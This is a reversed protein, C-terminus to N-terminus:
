DFREMYFKRFVDPLSNVDGNAYAYMDAYLEEITSKSFGIRNPHYEFLYPHNLIMQAVGDNINTQVYVRVAFAFEPSRSPHGNQYDLKHAEEHFCEKETKCYILGSIPNYASVGYINYPLVAYVAIILVIFVWLKKM